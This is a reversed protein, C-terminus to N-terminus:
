IININHIYKYKDIRFKNYTKLTTFISFVNKIYVLLSLIDVYIEYM